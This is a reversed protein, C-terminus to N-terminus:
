CNVSVVNEGPLILATLQGGRVCNTDLAKSFKKIKLGRKANHGYIVITPKENAKALKKQEKNWAKYWAKGKDQQQMPEGKYINRINMMVWPDQDELKLGPLLGAHVVIYSKGDVDPIKLSIPSDQLYM